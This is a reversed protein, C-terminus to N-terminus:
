GRPLYEGPADEKVLYSRQLADGLRSNPEGFEVGYYSEGPYVDPDIRRIIVPGVMGVCAILVTRGVDLYPHTLAVMGAGSISLEVIRGDPRSEADFPSPNSPDRVWAMPVSKIQRRKGIRKDTPIWDVTM